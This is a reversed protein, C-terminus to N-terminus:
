VSFRISLFHIFFPPFSSSISSVIVFIVFIVFIFNRTLAFVYSFIWIGVLFTSVDGDGPAWSFGDEEGALDACQLPSRPVWVVVGLTDEAEGFLM